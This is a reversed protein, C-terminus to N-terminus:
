QIELASSARPLTIPNDVEIDIITEEDLCDILKTNSYYRAWEYALEDRRNKSFDYIDFDLESYNDHILYKIFNGERKNLRVIKTSQSVIKYLLM